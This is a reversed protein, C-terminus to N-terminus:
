KGAAVLELVFRGVRGFTNDGANNEAGVGALGGAEGGDGEGGYGFGALLGVVAIRKGGSFDGEGIEIPAKADFGHTGAVVVGEGGELTVEIWSEGEIGGLQSGYGVTPFLALVGDFM